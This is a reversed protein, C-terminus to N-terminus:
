GQDLIFVGLEKYIDKNLICYVRDAVDRLSYVTFHMNNIQLAIGWSYVNFSYNKGSGNKKTKMCIPLADVM